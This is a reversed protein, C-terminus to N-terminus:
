KCNWHLLWTSYASACFKEAADACASPGSVTGSGEWNYSTGNALVITQCTATCHCAGATSGGALSSAASSAAANRGRVVAAQYQRAELPSLRGARFDAELQRAQALKQQDVRGSPSLSSQALALPAIASLTLAIAMSTLFRM